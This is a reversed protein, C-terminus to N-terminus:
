RLPNKGKKWNLTTESIAPLTTMNMLIVFVTIMSVPNGSSKTPINRQAHRTVRGKFHNLVNSLSNKILPGFRPDQPIFFPNDIRVIAHIHNPMVIHVDIRAAPHFIAIENLCQEAFKGLDRLIMRDNEIKGFFHIGGMTRITIFYQGSTCYDWGPQRSSEIRYRENYRRSM